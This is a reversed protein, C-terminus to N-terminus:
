VPRHARCDTKANAPAAAALLDALLAPHRHLDDGASLAYCAAQSALAGLVGMHGRVADDDFLELGSSGLARALAAARILPRLRSVDGGVIHPFVLVAPRSAARFQAPRARRMDVTRKVAPSADDALAFPRRLALAHISSTRAALLM